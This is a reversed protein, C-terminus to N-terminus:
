PHSRDVRHHHRRNGRDDGEDQGRGPHAQPGIALLGRRAVADARGGSQQAIVHGRIHHVIGDPAVHQRDQARDADAVEAQRVIALRQFLIHRRQALRQGDVAGIGGRGFDDGRRRLDLRLDVGIDGAGAGDRRRGGAIGWECGGGRM